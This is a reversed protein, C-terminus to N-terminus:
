QLTRHPPQKEHALYGQSWSTRRGYTRFNCNCIARQYPVLGGRTSVLVHTRLRRCTGYEYSVNQIHMVHVGYLVDQTYLVHQIYLVHVIYLVHIKVFFFRPRPGTSTYSSLPMNSLRELAPVQAASFISRHQGLLVGFNCLVRSDM